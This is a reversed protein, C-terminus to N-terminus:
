IEYHNISKIKLLDEKTESMKSGRRKCLSAKEVKEQYFTAFIL